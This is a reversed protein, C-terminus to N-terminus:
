EQLPTVWSMKEFPSYKVTSLDTEPNVFFQAPRGNYRVRIRAKVIADPVGKAAAEKKLMRAFAAVSRADNAMHMIQMENAFTGVEVAMTQRTLPHEVTFAFEEVPRTDVKMRWSFNKAVGTWDMDNPLFFGRFPFLLQFAFYALLVPKVRDSAVSVAGTRTAAPEPQAARNKKDQKKPEQEAGSKGNGALRRLWPLEQTEFFLILACLMVFPFIGIDNFIRSNALHFAAFPIIAWRRVPKYWLLFPALIDILLGGYTLVNIGFGNKLVPALWHSAPLTNVLSVIPEKLFLWDPKLKTLGGYFYVIMFQAQLIFQQWRPVMAYRGSQSRLSLFHDARTFSLLIGLLIFLYIHNNYYSKEQFFFLSLSFAFAWCAQRFWVGLAILLGSIGMVSLAALLVPRSPAPLWELGDFRFLMKPALLGQDILGMRYYVLAEYAMFLGFIIRFLGLVHGDIPESLWNKFRKSYGM